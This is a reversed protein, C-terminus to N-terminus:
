DFTFFFFSFCNQVSYKMMLLMEIIIMDYVSHLFVHPHSNNRLTRLKLKLRYHIAFGFGFWSDFDVITRACHSWFTKLFGHYSSIHTEHSYQEKKTRERLKMEVYFCFCVFLGFLRHFMSAASREKAALARLL